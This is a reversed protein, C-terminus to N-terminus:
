REWGSGSGSESTARARGGRASRSGTVRRARRGAAACAPGSASVGPRSWGPIGSQIPVGKVVADAGTTVAAAKGPQSRESSSATAASCGARAAQGGARPCSRGCGSPRPRWRSPGPQEAAVAASRAARLPHAARTASSRRGTRPRPRQRDSLAVSAAVDGADGSRRTPRPRGGPGVAAPGDRGREDGRGGEHCERARDVVGCGVHADHQRDRDREDRDVAEPDASARQVAGCRAPPVRRM